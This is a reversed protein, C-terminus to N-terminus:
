RPNRVLHESNLEISARCTPCTGIRHTQMMSRCSECVWHDDHMYSRTSHEITELCVPCDDETVCGPVPSQAPADGICQEGFSTEVPAEDNRTQHTECANCQRKRRHWQEASFEHTFRRELCVHCKRGALSLAGITRHIAKQLDPADGNQINFRQVIELIRRCRNSLESSAAVSSSTIITQFCTFIQLRVHVNIHDMQRLAGEFEHIVVRVDVITTLDCTIARRLRANTRVFKVFADMDDSTSRGDTLIAIPLHEGGNCRPCSPVCRSHIGILGHMPILSVAHAFQRHENRCNGCRVDKPVIQRMLADSHGHLFCQSLTATIQVQEETSMVRDVRPSSQMQALQRVQECSVEVYSVYPIGDYLICAPIMNKAKPPMTAVLKRLIKRLRTGDSADQLSIVTGVYMPGIGYMIYFTGILEDNWSDKLTSKGLAPSSLLTAHALFNSLQREMLVACQERVRPTDKANVVFGHEALVSCATALELAPLQPDVNLQLSQTLEELEDSTAQYTM